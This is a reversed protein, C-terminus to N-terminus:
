EIRQNTILHFKFCCSIWLKSNTAIYMNITNTIKDYVQLFTTRLMERQWRRQSFLIHSHKLTYLAVSEGKLSNLLTIHLSAFLLLTHLEWNINGDDAITTLKPFHSYVSLKRWLTAPTVRLPCSWFIKCMLTQKCTKLLVVAYMFFFFNYLAKQPELPFQMFDSGPNFVVLNFSTLQGSKQLGSRMEAQPQCSAAVNAVVLIVCGFSWGSQHHHLQM